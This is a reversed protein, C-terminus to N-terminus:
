HSNKKDVGFECMLVMKPILINAKYFQLSPHTSSRSMYASLPNGELNYRNAQKLACKSTLHGTGDYSHTDNYTTTRYSLQACATNIYLYLVYM